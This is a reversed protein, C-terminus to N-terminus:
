EAHARIWRLVLARARTAYPAEEVIQWGHFGGPYLVLRKDNSGSRHLLQRAEPVTLYHDQRSGLLLLPARLRSVGGLANMGLLHTEGSMSIVGAVRLGTGYTLAVVGGFSAGAVFVRRAGDARARRVAARLDRDFANIRRVPPRGSDGYNRFDFALVRVGAATLTRVYPLWGCLDVPYEHMLVVTTAGRGAEIAYLRVSDSTTLWFPKARVGSTQVCKAKLSRPAPAAATALALSVASVAIM